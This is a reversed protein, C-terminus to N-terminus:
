PWIIDVESNVAPIRARAQTVEDRTVDVFVVGPETGADALVDGWPGVALSHGYTRREKGRTASHRGTQAPALVYCGTEIARARLLTEWHAEGTPVAFASPVTLIEAGAQALRRYLKPFRLDYCVSLGVTGFPTEATVARDGPRYGASERYQETESVKVDFMHIKDYWAMIAGNADILFSRNAFRGDADHTKVAISGILVWIGLRAAQERLGALTPDDEQHHLVEKQRTRSASLCNTVEPTLVFGAGGAAAEDILGQTVPLNDEPSDSANLQILATKM